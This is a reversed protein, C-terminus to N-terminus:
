ELGIKLYNYLFHFADPFTNKLSFLGKPIKGNPLYKGKNSFTSSFLPSLSVLRVTSSRNQRMSLSLKTQLCLASESLFVWFYFFFFLNKEGFFDLSKIMTIIKASIRLYKGFLKSKLQGGYFSYGLLGIIITLCVYTCYRYPLDMVNPIGYRNLNAVANVARGITM